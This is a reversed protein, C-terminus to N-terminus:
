QWQPLPHRWLSEWSVVAMEIKFNMNILYNISINQKRLSEVLISKWNGKSADLMHDM